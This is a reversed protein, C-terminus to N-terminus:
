PKQDSKPPEVPKATPEPEVAGSRSVEPEAAEPKAAEPAAVEPQAEPTTIQSPATPPQPAPELAREAKAAPTATDQTEPTLAAEVAAAPQEEEIMAVGEAPTALTALPGFEVQERREPFDIPLQRRRREGYLGAQAAEHAAQLRDLLAVYSGSLFMAMALLKGSGELIKAASPPLGVSDFFVNVLLMVLLFWFGALFSVVMRFNALVTSRFYIVLGVAAAVAIVKLLLLTSTGAQPSGDIILTLHERLRFQQDLALVFFGLAFVLWTHNQQPVDPELHVITGAFYCAVFLLCAGFMQVSGLWTIFSADRFHHDWQGGRGDYIAYAIAILNILVLSLSVVKHYAYPAHGDAM